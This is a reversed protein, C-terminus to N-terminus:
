ERDKQKVSESKMVELWASHTDALINEFEKESIGLWEAQKKVGPSLM